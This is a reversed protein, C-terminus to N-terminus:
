ASLRTRSLIFLSHVVFASPFSLILPNISRMGNMRLAIVHAAPGVVAMMVVLAIASLSPLMIVPPFIEM